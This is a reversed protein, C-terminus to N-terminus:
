NGKSESSEEDKEKKVNMFVAGDIPLRIIDYSSYDNQPLVRILKGYLFGETVAALDTVYLISLQNVDEDKKRKREAELAQMETECIVVIATYGVSHTRIYENFRKLRSVFQNEWEPTTRISLTHLTVPANNSCFRYIADSAENFHKSTYTLASGMQKHLMIDHQNFSLRRMIYDMTCGEVDAAKKMSFIDYVRSTPMYVFPTSHKVEDGYIFQFRKVLGRGEMQKLRNTVYNQKLEPFQAKLTQYLLFANLYEYETLKILIATDNETIWHEAFLKKIDVIIKHKPEHYEIKTGEHWSYPYHQTNEM